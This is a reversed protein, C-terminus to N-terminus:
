FGLGVVGMIFFDSGLDEDVGFATLWFKDWGLNLILYSKSNLM